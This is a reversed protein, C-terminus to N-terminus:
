LFQKYMNLFIISKNAIVVLWLILAPIYLLLLFTFMRTPFSGWFKIALVLYAIFICLEIVGYFIIAAMNSCTCTSM